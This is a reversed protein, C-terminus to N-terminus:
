ASIDCLMCQKNWTTVKTSVLCKCVASTAHTGTADALPHYAQVPATDVHSQKYYQQVRCMGTCPAAVAGPRALRSGYSCLVEDQTRPQPKSLRNM